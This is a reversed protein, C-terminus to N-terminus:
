KQKNRYTEPNIAMYREVIMSAIGAEFKDQPFRLSRNWRVIEQETATTVQHSTPYTQIRRSM